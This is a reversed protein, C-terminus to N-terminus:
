PSMVGRLGIETAKGCLHGGFLDGLRHLEGNFPPLVLTAGAGKARSIGM